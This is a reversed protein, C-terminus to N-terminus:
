KNLCDRQLSVPPKKKPGTKKGRVAERPASQESADRALRLGKLRATNTAVAAANAESESLITRSKETNFHANAQQKLSDQM